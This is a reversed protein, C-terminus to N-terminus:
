VSNGKKHHMEPLNMLVFSPTLESQSHKRTDGLSTCSTTMALREKLKIRFNPESAKISSKVLPLKNNSDPNATTSTPDTIYLDQSHKFRALACNKSIEYEKQHDLKKKEETIPKQKMTQTKLYGDGRNKNYFIDSANMDMLSKSRKAHIKMYSTFNNAKNGDTGRLERHSGNEDGPSSFLNHPTAKGSDVILQETM